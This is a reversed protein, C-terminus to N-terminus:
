ESEYEVAQIGIITFSILSDNYRKAVTDLQLAVKVGEDPIKRSTEPMSYLFEEPLGYVDWDPRGKAHEVKFTKMELENTMVIALGETANAARYRRNDVGKYSRQRSGSRVTSKRHHSIRKKRHLSPM